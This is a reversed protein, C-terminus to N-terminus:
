IVRLGLATSALLGLWIVLVFPRTAQISHSIAAHDQDRATDQVMREFAPGFDKLRIRIMLGCGVLLAYILLKYTVWPVRSGGMDALSYAAYAVLCLIVAIRFYFDFRSTFQKAAGPVAFRLYLVMSLWGLCIAWVIAIVPGDLPLMGLRWALHIGLPLMLTMCIEPALDLAFLIRIVVIRTNAPLDRDVAFYSSYWAGLDGGLWYVLGLVHAFKLLAIETM